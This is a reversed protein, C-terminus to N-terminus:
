QNHPFNLEGNLVVPKLARLKLMWFDECKNTQINSLRQGDKPKRTTLYTQIM